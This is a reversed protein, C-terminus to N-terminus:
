VEKRVWIIEGFFCMATLISITYYRLMVTCLVIVIRTCNPFTRVPYFMVEAYTNVLKEVLVTMWCYITGIILYYCIGEFLKM